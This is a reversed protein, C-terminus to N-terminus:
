VDTFGEAELHRVLASGVLGRHGAVYVSGARDITVPVAHCTM